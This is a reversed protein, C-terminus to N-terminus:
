ERVVHGQKSMASVRMQETTERDREWERDAEKCYVGNSAAEQRKIKIQIEIAQFLTQCM